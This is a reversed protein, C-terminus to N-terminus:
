YQHEGLLAGKRNIAGSVRIPVTAEGSKAARAQPSSQASQPPRRAGHMNVASHLVSSVIVSSQSAWSAILVQDVRTMRRMMWKSVRTSVESGRGAQIHSYEIMYM